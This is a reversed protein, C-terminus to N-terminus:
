AASRPRTSRRRTPARPRRHELSRRRRAAVGPAHHRCRLRQHRQGRGARTGPQRRLGRLHPRGPRLRRRVLRAAAPPEDHHDRHEPQARLRHLDRDPGGVVVGPRDNTKLISPNPQRVNVTYTATVPTIATGGLADVGTFRATNTRNVANQATTLAASTVRATATVLFRQPSATTNDLTGRFASPVPPPTSRRRQGPASRAVRLRAAPRSRDAHARRPLVGADAGAVVAPRLRHAARRRAHRRVGVHRRPTHRRLPLHRARRDHGPEATNNNTETISTTGVKGVIDKPM